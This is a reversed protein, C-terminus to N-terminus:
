LRWYRCDNTARKRLILDFLTQLYSDDSIMEVHDGIGHFGWIQSM